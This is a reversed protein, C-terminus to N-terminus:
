VVKKETPENQKWNAEAEAYNTRALLRGYVVFCSFGLFFCIGAVWLPLKGIAAYYAVWGMSFIGCMWCLGMFFVWGPTYPLAWDKDSDM